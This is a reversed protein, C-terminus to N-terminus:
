AVIASLLEDGLSTYESVRGDLCRIDMSLSSCLPCALSRLLALLERKMGGTHTTKDQELSDSESVAVAPQMTMRKPARIYM